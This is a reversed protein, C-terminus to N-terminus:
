TNAERQMNSSASSVKGPFSPVFVGERTIPMEYILSGQEPHPLSFVQLQGKHFVM